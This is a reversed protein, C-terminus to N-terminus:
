TQDILYASPREGGGGMGSTVCHSHVSYQYGMDQVVVGGGGCVRVITLTM